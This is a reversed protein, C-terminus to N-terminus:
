YRFCRCADAYFTDIIDDGNSMFYVHFNTACILDEAEKKCLISNSGKKLIFGDVHM